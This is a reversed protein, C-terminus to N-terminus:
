SKREKVKESVVQKHVARPVRVVWEGLRRILIRFCFQRECGAVVNQDPAVHVLIAKVLAFQQVTPLTEDRGVEDLPQLAFVQDLEVPSGDETELDTDTKGLMASVTTGSQFKREELDASVIAASGAKRAIQQADAWGTVSPGDVLLGVRVLRVMRVMVMGSGLGDVM